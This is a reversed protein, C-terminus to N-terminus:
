GDNIVNCILRLLLVTWITSLNSSLNSSLYHESLPQALLENISPEILRALPLNVVIGYLYLLPVQELDPM